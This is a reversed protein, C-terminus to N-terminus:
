KSISRSSVIHWFIVNLFVDIENGLLLDLEESPACRRLSDAIRYRTERPTESEDANVQENKSAPNCHICQVITIKPV